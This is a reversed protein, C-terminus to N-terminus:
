FLSKHKFIRTLLFLPPFLDFLFLQERLEPVVKTHLLIQWARLIGLSFDCTNKYRETVVRGPLRWLWPPSLAATTQEQSAGGVASSFSGRDQSCPPPKPYCSLSGLLAMRAVMFGHTWAPSLAPLLETCCVDFSNTHFVAGSGVSRKAAVDAYTDYDGGGVLQRLQIQLALSLEEKLPSNWRKMRSSDVTSGNKSNRVKVEVVTVTSEPIHNSGCLGSGAYSNHTVETGHM